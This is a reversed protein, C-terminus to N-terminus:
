GPKQSSRAATGPQAAREGHRRAWRLALEAALQAAAALSAPEIATAHRDGTLSVGPIKCLLFPRHDLPRLSWRALRHPIWLDRAAGRALELAEGKGALLVEPGVGPAELNIVLTPTLPERRRIHDALTLAGLQGSASGGVAALRVELRDHLRPPISRGLEALMALGSRNDSATARGVRLWYRAEFGLAALGLGVLIWARALPSLPAGALVALIVILGIWCADERGAAPLPTDLRSLIFVRAPPNSEGPRVAILNVMREPDKASRWAEFRERAVRPGDRGVLLRVLVGTAAYGLVFWLARQGRPSDPFTRKLAAWLLYAQCILSLALLMVVASFRCGTETEARVVRWGAEELHGALVDAARREGESGTGRPFEFERVSDLARGVDFKM